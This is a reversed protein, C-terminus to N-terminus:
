GKKKPPKRHSIPIGPKKPKAPPKKKAPKTTVSPEKLDIFVIEGGEEGLMDIAEAITAPGGPAGVLIRRTEKAKKRKKKGFARNWGDAYGKSYGGAQFTKQQYKM